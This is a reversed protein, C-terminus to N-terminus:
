SFDNVSASTCVEKKKWLQKVNRIRYFNLNTSITAISHFILATYGICRNPGHKDKKNQTAGGPVLFVKFYFWLRKILSVFYLGGWISILCTWFGIQHGVSWFNHIFFHVYLAQSPFLRCSQNFTEIREVVFINTQLQLFEVDGLVEEKCNYRKWKVRRLSTLAWFPSLRLIEVRWSFNLKLRM